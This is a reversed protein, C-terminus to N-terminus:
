TSHFTNPVENIKSPPGIGSNGSGTYRQSTQADIHTHTHKETDVDTDTDTRIHRNRQTGVDSNKRTGKGPGM